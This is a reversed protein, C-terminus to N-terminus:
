AVFLAADLLEQHPEFFHSAGPVVRLECQDSPDCASLSSAVHKAERLAIFPDNDSHVLIINGGANDVIEQWQWPGGDFPGGDGTPFYGSILESQSGLHTHYPSIIVAGALRHAELLRLGAAAGSSHGIVVTNEDARLENLMFPLWISRRANQPDPMNRLLVESYLGSAALKDALWGYFNCRSIDGGSGNGPVIVARLLPKSGM